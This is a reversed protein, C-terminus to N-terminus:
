KVQPHFSVSALEVNRPRALAATQSAIAHEAKSPSLANGNQGFGGQWVQRLFYTSGYRHFVLKTNQASKATLQPSALLLIGPKGELSRLELISQSNTNRTIRYEGAPLVTEGVQFEFPINGQLGTTVQAHALPLSLLGFVTATTFIRLKM